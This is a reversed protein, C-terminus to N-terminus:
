AELAGEANITMAIQGTGGYWMDGGAEYAWFMEDLVSRENKVIELAAYLRRREDSDLVDGSSALVRFHYPAGGYEPWETIRARSGLMSSVVSAVAAPTGLMRQVALANRILDRKVSIHANYDYWAVAYQWALSDLVDENLEDVNKLTLSDLRAGLDRMLGSLATCFAKATDDDQLFEPLLKLIDVSEITM